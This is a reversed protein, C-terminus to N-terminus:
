YLAGIPGTATTFTTPVAITTPITGSVGTVSGAQFSLGVEGTIYKQVTATNGSSQFGIFYSRYGSIEIPTALPLCQYLSANAATTAASQGLLNGYYDYLVFIHTDSGVTSGNLLCIGTVPRNHEVSIESLYVTGGVPVASSPTTGFAPQTTALPAPSADEMPFLFTPGTPRSTDGSSTSVNGIWVTSGNIHQSAPTGQIGRKVKFCTTLVGSGTVQLMERDVFLCSGAISMSPVVVGTGSNLCFQTTSKDASGALTTTGVLPASVPFAYQQGFAFTAAISLLILTKITTNM